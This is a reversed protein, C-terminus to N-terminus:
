FRIRVVLPMGSGATPNPETGSTIYGVTGGVLLGVAGGLVAGAWRGSPDDWIHGGLSGGIGIGTAWGAIGWLVTGGLHDEAFTGIALGTAFGAIMPVATGIIAEERTDLPDGARARATLFAVALWSGTAAGLAGGGLVSWDQSVATVPRPLEVTCLLVLTLLLVRRM